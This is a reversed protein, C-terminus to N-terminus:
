AIKKGAFASSDLVALADGLDRWEAWDKISGFTRHLHRACAIVNRIEDAPSGQIATRLALVGMDNLEAVGDDDIDSLVKRAAAVLGAVQSELFDIRGRM